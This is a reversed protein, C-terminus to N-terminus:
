AATTAALKYSKEVDSEFNREGTVAHEVWVRWGNAAIRAASELVEGADVVSWSRVFGTTVRSFVAPNGAVYKLSWCKQTAM